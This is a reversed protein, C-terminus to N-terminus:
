YVKDDTRRQERQRDRRCEGADPQHAADRAPQEIADDIGEREEDPQLQYEVARATENSISKAPLQNQPFSIQEAAAALRKGMFSALPGCRRRPQVVPVQAVAAARAAKSASTVPSKGSGTDTANGRPPLGLKASAMCSRPSSKARAPITFSAPSSGSTVCPASTMAVTRSRGAPLPITKLAPSPTPMTVRAPRGIGGPSGAILGTGREIIRCALSAAAATSPAGASTSISIEMGSPSSSAFRVRLPRRTITPPRDIRPVVPMTTGNEQAAHIAVMWRPM